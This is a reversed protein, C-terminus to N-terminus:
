ANHGDLSVDEGLSGAPYFVIAPVATGTKAPKEPPGYCEDDCCFERWQELAENASDWWKATAATDTCSLLLCELELALRHCQSLTTEIEARHKAEAEEMHRAAQRMVEAKIPDSMAASERRLWGAYRQTMSM